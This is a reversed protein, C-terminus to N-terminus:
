KALKSNYLEEDQIVKVAELFIKDTENIIEYFESVTFIDRAVLAKLNVKLHNLSRNYEEENFKLKEKEAHALLGTLFDEDIEFNEKFYSFDKDKKKGLYKNELSKRNKDM